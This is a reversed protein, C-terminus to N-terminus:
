RRSTRGAGDFGGRGSGAPGQPIGNPNNFVPNGGLAM